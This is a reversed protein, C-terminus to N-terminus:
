CRASCPAGRCSSRRPHFRAAHRLKAVGIRATRRTARSSGAQEDPPSPLVVAAWAGAGRGVPGAGLVGTVFIVGSGPLAGVQISARSSGAAGREAGYPLVSLSGSTLAAPRYTKMM